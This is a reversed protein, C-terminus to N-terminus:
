FFGVVDIDLFIPHSSDLQDKSNLSCFFTWINDLWYILLQLAEKSVQRRDDITQCMLVIKGTVGAGFAPAIGPAAQCLTFHVTSLM